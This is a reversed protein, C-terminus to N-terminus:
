AARVSRNKGARKAEYLAEDAAAVLSRLDDASRPSRRSASAPPSRCRGRPRRRAADAAGRDRHARARRRQVRGRPRHGAPRRRAGRRRLPRARRDRALERAPGPRGGQPRPRGAPPRLHRQRAQLRRHRAARARPRLRLAAVREVEREMAEQFRRRNALGTLEDTVAQREVVEHLGVNEVSVAAQGALYHFLELETPTFPRDRRWVSVAGALQADEGNPGRLPHALATAGDHEAEAALGTRLVDREASLVADGLEGDVVGARAVEELPGDSSRRVTARGGDAGIGDVTTSVVVELLADRDLNSAFAEGTRRLASQLRIREQQLEALRAELQASMKNFEDGLAAFEDRGSTPVKASFDGAGLRRAADLFREIQRQLSRSVLVAFTFALVFFGALIGGALLRSDNVQSATRSAPELVTIEFREGDFGPTTFTAARHDSGGIEVDGVTVQDSPAPLKADGSGDLTAALVEDGRRVVVELQTVRRVLRAYTVADTGAVELRGIRRGADAIGRVAPFVARRAGVDTRAEEDEQFVIRATRTERRLRELERRVDQPEGDRVAAALEPDSGIRLAAVDARERADAALGIAADQRAAIRADAKGTENDSILSFLVVAVSVMPVIVILIFFLTLRSRFSM